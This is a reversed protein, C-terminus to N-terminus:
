TKTENPDFFDAAPLEQRKKQVIKGLLRINQTDFRLSAAELGAETSLFVM